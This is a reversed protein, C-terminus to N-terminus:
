LLSGKEEIMKNDQMHKQESWFNLRALAIDVYEKTIDCAIFHRNTLSCAIPTCGSGCFPDLIIDNERSFVNLLYCYLSLPKATPHINQTLEFEDLGANKESVQAKSCPIMNGVKKCDDQLQLTKKSLKYLEPLNKKTWADLSFYRSLDGQDEHFAVRKYKTRNNFLWEEKVSVTYDSSSVSKSVRGVDLSNDSVLLNAPFRGMSLDAPIKEKLGLKVIYNETNHYKKGDKVDLANDSVLLNAPFRGQANPTYPTTSEGSGITRKDGGAHTCTSFTKSMAPKMHEETPIRGSDLWTGGTGQKTYFSLEEEKVGQKLLDIRENYWKLAQDVQSKSQHPKMVCIVVEVAPKPQFGGYLGNCYQGKESNIISSPKSMLKDQRGELRRWSGSNRFEVREGEVGERKDIKRAINNAKPFGSNFQWYLPSFNCDFGVEILRALFVAQLDQRPAFTTIFWSGEKLVRYCESLFHKTPLVDWVQNMFGKTNNADEYIMAKADIKDMGYPVDTLLLDVSNTDLGKLLELNNQCYINDVKAKM